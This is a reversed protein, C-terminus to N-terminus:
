AGKDGDICGKEGEPSSSPHQEQNAPNWGSVPLCVKDLHATAPRATIASGSQPDLDTILDQNSEETYGTETKDGPPQAVGIMGPKDDFVM